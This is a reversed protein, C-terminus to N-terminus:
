RSKLLLISEHRINYINQITRHLMNAIEAPKYGDILLRLVKAYQAPLSSLILDTESCIECEFTEVGYDEEKSVVDIYKDICKNHILYNKFDNKIATYIYSKIKAPTDFVSVSKWLDIFIDQLIDEALINTEKYLMSTYVYFERYYMKYVEAFAESNKKNFDSLLKTM